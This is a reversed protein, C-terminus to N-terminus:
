IETKFKVARKITPIEEVSHYIKKQLKKAIKLEQDAGKSNGLYLFVDCVVLWADHWVMYDAWSLKVGLKRARIDVYHTLHPAYPFHGKKFVNIAADIVVAVNSRQKEKKKSSYPGAIYIKLPRHSM